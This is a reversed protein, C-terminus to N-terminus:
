SRSSQLHWELLREIPQQIIVGIECGHSQAVQRVTDSFHHAISGVFSVPYSQYNPYCCVHQKFFENIGEYVLQQIYETDPSESLVRAFSALYVNAHPEKYVAHFINEKTVKYKEVLLKETAKPLQHYLFSTLLKKGFYSGSGEDGLVYGLAPVVESYAKGDFLCSNSGTGIICSITPRGVYTAFASAEMDHGVFIEADTFFAKLADAVVQNRDASSCGSGYFVVNTFTGAIASLAENNKLEALISETSHFFPNFGITEFRDKNVSIWNTKTSGSDAVLLMTQNKRFNISQVLFLFQM